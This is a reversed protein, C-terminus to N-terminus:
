CELFDAVIMPSLLCTQAIDKQTLGEAALRRVKSQVKKVYNDKEVLTDFFNGAFFYNRSFINNARGIAMVKTAETKTDFAIKSVEVGERLLKLIESTGDLPKKKVKLGKAILMRNIADYSMDVFPLIDNISYGDKHMRMAEERQNERYTAM